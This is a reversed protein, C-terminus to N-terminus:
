KMYKKLINELHRYDYDGAKVRINGGEEYAEPLYIEIMRGDDILGYLTDGLGDPRLKVIYNNYDDHVLGYINESDHEGTGYLWGVLNHYDYFTMQDSCEVMYGDALDVLKYSYTDEELSEHSTMLSEIQDRSLGEVLIRKKYDSFLGMRFKMEKPRDQDSKKQKNFLFFSLLSFVILVGAILYEESMFFYYALATLIIINLPWSMRMRNLM